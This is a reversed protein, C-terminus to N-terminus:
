YDIQGANFDVFLMRDLPSRTPTSSWYPGRLTEPFITSDITPKRSHDVISMLEIHSPLRWDRHGALALGSCYAVADSWDLGRQPHGKQWMLKTVNDTITGDGNDTHSIPHPAGASVDAASNPMPWNAWRSDFCEPSTYGGCVLGEGCTETVTYASCGNAALACSGITSSTACGAAGVTCAKTCCSASGDPGSCSREDCVATSKVLCSRSDRACTVLTPTAACTTGQVVCAPEVDCVCKAVGEVTGCSQHEGCTELHVWANGRCVQLYFNNLCSTEGEQCVRSTTSATTGGASAGGSAM